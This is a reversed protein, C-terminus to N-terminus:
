YLTPAGHPLAAPQNQTAYLSAMSNNRQNRFLKARTAGESATTNGNTPTTNSAIPAANATCEQFKAFVRKLVVAVIVSFIEPNAFSPPTTYVGRNRNRNGLPSSTVTCAALPDASTSNGAPSVTGTSYRTSSGCPAIM